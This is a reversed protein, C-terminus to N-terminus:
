KASFWPHTGFANKPVPEGRIILWEFGRVVSDLYSQLKPRLWFAHPIWRVAVPMHQIAHTCVVIRLKCSAEDVAELRWSVMSKRGKSRGIELDYGVGDLWNRFRREYVWGSLYHVEDRSAPGPWEHVPNSACFPHAHELNGPKSISEWVIKQPAQIVREASIPWRFTSERSLDDM